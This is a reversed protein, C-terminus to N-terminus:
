DNSRSDSVTCFDKAITNPFLVTYAMVIDLNKLYITHDIGM